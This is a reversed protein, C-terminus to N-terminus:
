KNLQKHNFFEIYQAETNFKQGYTFHLEIHCSTCLTAGNEVDTRREICWHYGDKHHVVIGDESGCCQCRFWDRRLCTMRWQRYDVTLRKANREEDTLNPNWAYHNEGKISLAQKILGCEKCRNGRVFADFRVISERNCKCIYRMPTRNNIYETELLTCGNIEFEENVEKFSLKRKETRSDVGCQSCQHSVLFQSLCKEGDRGCSCIFFLNSKNNIYEETILECNYKYFMEKVEEISYKQPDQRNKIGCEKCRHGLRFKTFTIKKANGCECEYDLIGDVGIYESSLLKCGGDEFVKRVEEITYKSRGKVSNSRSDSVCIECYPFEKFRKYIKSSNNGCKCKYEVIDNVTRYETSLLECGVSVMFERVDNINTRKGKPM